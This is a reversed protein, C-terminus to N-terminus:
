QGMKATDAFEGRLQLTYRGELLSNHDFLSLQGPKLWFTGNSEVLHTIDQFPLSELQATTAVGSASLPQLRAQLRLLKKSGTVFGVMDARNTWGDMADPGSDELLRVSVQSVESKTTKRLASVPYPEFTQQNGAVDIATLQLLPHQGPSLTGFALVQNILGAKSVPIPMVAASPALQYTLQQIPSGTGDLVGVLRTGGAIVQNAVLPLFQQDILTQLQVTPKARDVTIWLYTPLSEGLSTTATAAIKYQGDALPTSM